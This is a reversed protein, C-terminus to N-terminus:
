SRHVVLREAEALRDDKAAAHAVVGEVRQVLNEALQVAIGRAKHAVRVHRGRETAGEQAAEEREELPVQALAAPAVAPDADDRRDIGAEVAEELIELRPVQLVGSRGPRRPPSSSATCAPTPAAWRLSSPTAAGSWSGARRW